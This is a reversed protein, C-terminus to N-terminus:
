QATYFWYDGYVFEVTRSVYDADDYVKGANDGHVYIMDGYTITMTLPRGQDDTTFSYQDLGEAYIYQSLVWKSGNYESTCSWNESKYSGSVLAGNADYAFERIEKQSTVETEYSEYYSHYEKVEKVMNGADDYTYTYTVTTSSDIGNPHEIKVLDNNSNYEYTIDLEGDNSKIHEGIKNDNADYTIDVIYRVSDGDMYKIKVPKGADDYTVDQTGYLNRPNSETLEFAYSANATKLVSGDPNYDWTPNSYGTSVNEMHDLTTHVEKLLVDQLSSFNALIANYDWNVGENNYGSYYNTGCYETDVWKDIVTKDLAELKKYYCALAASGSYSTENEEDWYSIYGDELYSCLSLVINNYSNLVTWDDETPRPPETVVNNSGGENGEGENGEEGGLQENQYMDYIYGVAGEYDGADLMDALDPYREKEGCACLSLALTLVLAIAIIKKM